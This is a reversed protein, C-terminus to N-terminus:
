WTSPLSDDLETTLAWETARQQERTLKVGGCTLYFADHATAGETDILAVEISCSQRALISSITHLLGPRDQTVVELL